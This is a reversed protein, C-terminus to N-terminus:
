TASKSGLGAISAWCIFAAVGVCLSLFISLGIPQDERVSAEGIVRISPSGKEVYWVSNDDIQVAEAVFYEDNNWGLPKVKPIGVITKGNGNTQRLAFFSSGVAELSAAKSGITIQTDSKTKFSVNTGNHTKPIFLWITIGLWALLCILSWCGQLLIKGEKKEMEKNEV